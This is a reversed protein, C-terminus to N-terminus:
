AAATEVPATEDAGNAAALIKEVAKCTRSLVRQCAKRLADDANLKPFWSGAYSKIYSLSYGQNEDKRGVLRALVAAVLQAVIEQDSHQGGQLAHSRGDEVHGLEHFWTLEDPTCLVVETGTTWGFAHGDFGFTRVKVGWKEAVEMLPHSPLPHSEYELEAGETSEAAFVPIGVFGILKSREEGTAKDKDKVLRPGLISFARAGKKVHRGVAEWQRFGRADGTGRMMAIVRNSLSWRAMPINPAPFTAKRIASPVDGREFAAVIGDLTERVRDARQTKAQAM